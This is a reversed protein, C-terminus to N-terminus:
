NITSGQHLIMLRNISGNKHNYVHFSQPAYFCVQHVRSHPSQETKVAIKDPTRETAIELKTSPNYPTAYQYLNIYYTNLIPQDKDIKM